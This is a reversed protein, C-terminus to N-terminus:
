SAQRREKGAYDVGKASRLRDQGLVVWGDSRRFESIKNSNILHRLLPPRVMETNGNPYKVRIMM